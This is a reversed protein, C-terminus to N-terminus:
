AEFTKIFEDSTVVKVGYVKQMYGLARKHAEESFAEVCDQAVIIEYGRYFADAATNQICIDTSVGILLLRSIALDRLLQDLKTGFFASYRSKTIIHDGEMPKLMPVVQAGESGAIAHPGWLKFEPDDKLHSDNIYIVPIGKSRSFDLLKQIAPVINKARELRLKGTVFDNIMDIVLVAVKL